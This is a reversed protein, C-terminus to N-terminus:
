ENSPPESLDPFSVNISQIENRLEQNTTESFQMESVMIISRPTKTTTDFSILQNLVRASTSITSLIAHTNKPISVNGGNHKVTFGQSSLRFHPIGISALLSQTKLHANILSEKTRNGESLQELLVRVDDFGNSLMSLTSGSIQYIGEQSKPFLCGYVDRAQYDALKGIPGIQEFFKQFEEVHKFYNSFKNQGAASEIQASTQVSRHNAALLALIPISLALVGLPVRFVVLFHNFGSYSPDFNLNSSAIIVGAISLAVILITGVVWRLARQEIFSRTPEFWKLSPIGQTRRRVGHQAASSPASAKRFCASRSTM